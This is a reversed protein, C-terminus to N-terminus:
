FSLTIGLDLYCLERYWDGEGEIYEYDDISNPSGFLDVVENEKMGFKVSGVGIGAEIKM